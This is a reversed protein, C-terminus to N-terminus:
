SKRPISPTLAMPSYNGTLSVSIRGVCSLRANVSDASAGILRGTVIHGECEAIFREGAAKNNKQVEVASPFAQLACDRRVM